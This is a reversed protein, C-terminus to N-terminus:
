ARRAGPGAREAALLRTTKCGARPRTLLPAAARRAKPLTRLTGRRARATVIGGAPKACRLAAAARTWARAPRTCCCTVAAAARPQAARASTAAGGGSRQSSSTLRGSAGPSGRAEACPARASLLSAACSPAALARSRSRAAERSPTPRSPPPLLAQRAAASPSPSSCASPSTLLQSACLVADVRAHELHATDRCAAHLWSSPLAASCAEPHAKGVGSGAPSASRHRSPACPLSCATSNCSPPM